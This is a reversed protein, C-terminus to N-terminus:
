SVEGIFPLVPIRIYAVTGEGPMAKFSLEGGMSRVFRRCVLLSKARRGTDDASEEVGEPRSLERIVEEPMGPGQDEVRLLIEDGWREAGLVVPSGPPSFRFANDLLCMLAERLLRKDAHLRPLDDELELFIEGGRGRRAYYDRLDKIMSALDIGRPSLVARPVPVEGPAALLDPPDEGERSLRAIQLYDHKGGDHLDGRASGGEERGPDAPRGEEAEVPEPVAAGGVAKGRSALRMRMVRVAEGADRGIAELKKWEGEGAEERPNVLALAGVVTGETRLPIALLSRWRKEGLLGALQDPDELLSAVQEWGERPVGGHVTVRLLGEERCQRRYDPRLAINRFSELGREELGRVAELTALGKEVLFAAGAEYGVIEGALELCHGLFGEWDASEAAKEMIERHRELAEVRKRLEELESAEGGSEQLLLAYERTKGRVQYAHRVVMRLEKAARRMKLTVTAEKEEGLALADEVLVKVRDRVEAPFLEELVTGIARDKPVGLLEEATSSILTVRRDPTFCILPSRASELLSWLRRLEQNREKKMRAESTVNRGLGLMTVEGGGEWPMVTVAVVSVTGDPRKFELEGRWPTARVTEALYEVTKKSREHALFFSLPRGLVEDAKHGMARCMAANAYMIGVQDDLLFAPDVIGDLFVRLEGVAEPVLMSLQSSRPRPTKGAGGPLTTTISVMSGTSGLAELPYPTISVNLRLLNKGLKYAMAYNEVGRGRRTKALLDKLAAHLTPNVERLSVKRVEELPRELFVEADRNGELIRDEGDLLLSARLVGSDERERMTRGKTRCIISFAKREINSQMLVLFPFWSSSKAGRSRRMQGTFINSDRREEM